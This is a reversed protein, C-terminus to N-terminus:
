WVALGRSCHKPSTMMGLGMSVKALMVPMGPPTLSWVSASGRTTLFVGTLSCWWWAEATPAWPPCWWGESCGEEREAEM